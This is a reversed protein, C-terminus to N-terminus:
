SVCSSYGSRQNSLSCVSFTENANGLFKPKVEGAM